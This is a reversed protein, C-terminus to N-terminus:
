PNTGFIQLSMLLLFAKLSKRIKRLVLKLHRLDILCRIILYKSGVRGSAIVTSFEYLNSIHEYLMFACCSKSFDHHSLACFDHNKGMESLVLVLEIELTNLLKEAYDHTTVASLLWRM